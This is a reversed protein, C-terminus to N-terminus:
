LNKPFTSSFPAERIWLKLKFKTFEGLIEIVVHYMPRTAHCQTTTATVPGKTGNRKLGGKQM